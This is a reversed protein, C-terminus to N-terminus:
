HPIGMVQCQTQHLFDIVQWQSRHLTNTVQWEVQTPHGYIPVSIQGPHGICTFKLVKSIMYLTKCVSNDKHIQGNRGKEEKIANKHGTDPERRQEQKKYNEIRINGRGINKRSGIRINERNWPQWIM